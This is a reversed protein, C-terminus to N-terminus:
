SFPHLLFFSLFLLAPMRFFSFSFCAPRPPRFQSGEFSRGKTHKQLNAKKQKTPSEIPECFLPFPSSTEGAAIIASMVGMTCGSGNYRTITRGSLRYQTRRLTEAHKEWCGPESSRFSLPTSFLLLLLSVFSAFFLLAARSCRSLVLSFM